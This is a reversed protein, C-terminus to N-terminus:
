QECKIIKHFVELLKADPKPQAKEKDAAAKVAELVRPDNNWLGHGWVYRPHLEWAARLRTKPDSLMPLLYDLAANKQAATADKRWGLNQVAIMRVEEPLSADTVLAAL